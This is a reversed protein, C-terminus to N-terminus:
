RAPNSWSSAYNLGSRSVAVWTSWQSSAALNVSAILGPIGYGLLAVGIAVEGLGFRQQLYLGLWTYVGSHLVANILVYSYTRRGRRSRLLARYGALVARVPGPDVPRPLTPLVRFGVMLLLLLLGGAAVALFLGPWGITADALAGATSGVAIGGAM